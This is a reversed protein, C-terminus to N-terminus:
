VRSVILRIIHRQINDHGKTTVIATNKKAM